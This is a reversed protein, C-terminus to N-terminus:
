REPPLFHCLGLRSALWALPQRRALLVLHEDLDEGLLRGLPLRGLLETHVAGGHDPHATGGLLARQVCQGRRHRAPRPRVRSCTSSSSALASISRNRAVTVSCATLRCRYWPFDRQSQGGAQDRRTDVRRHLLAQQIQDGVRALVAAPRQAARGARQPDLVGPQGAPGHPGGLVPQGVGPGAGLKGRVCQQVPFALRDHGQGFLPALGVPRVAFEGM